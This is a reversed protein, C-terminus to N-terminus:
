RVPAAGRDTFKEGEVPVFEWEFDTARLTLKLVGFTKANRVATIRKPLKFLMYHNKGGTGVVFSTLGDRDDRDGEVNAPKFREYHHDHGWLVADAREKVLLEWIPQMHKHDGHAGSSWRPHHWYALVNKGAARAAALEGQAWQYQPSGPGVGVQDDNSNLVIARWKEGADYAYWGEGVKGAQAGFYGWYGAAGPTRYEHNGIAPRTRAKHRGWTPHYYKAFQEPSGEQYANDGLAFVLGPIRDLLRATQEAGPSDYAIDGAGVMVVGAKDDAAAHVPIGGREAAIQPLVTACGSVAAALALAAPLWHRTM